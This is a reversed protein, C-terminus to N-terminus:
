PDFMGDLRPSFFDQIAEETRLGKRYLLDAAQKPLKLKLSLQETIRQAEEDPPEPILWRKDM